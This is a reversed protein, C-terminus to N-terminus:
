DVEIGLQKCLTKFGELYEPSFRWYIAGDKQSTFRIAAVDALFKEMLKDTLHGTVAIDHDPMTKIAVRHAVASAAPTPTSPASSGPANAAAKGSSPVQAQLQKIKDQAVAQAAEHSGTEEPLQYIRGEPTVGGIVRMTDLESEDVIHGGLGVLKLTARRTAKTGVHMRANALMAGSLEYWQNKKRSYRKLPIAGLDSAHRGTRDQLYAEAMLMGDEQWQKIPQVETVGHIMRLQDTCNRSAYMILREAESEWDSVLIFIFPCTRPNLKLSRCTDLVLSVREEPSLNILNGQILAQEVKESL